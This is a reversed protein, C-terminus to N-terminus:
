QLYRLLLHFSVMTKDLTAQFADNGRKGLRDTGLDCKLRKIMREVSPRRTMIAKFRKAMPPDTPDINKLADFPVTITRGAQNNNNCCDDRHHCGVCFPVGEEDKPPGYIFREKAYRVGQYDMEHDALCIPNGHPTIRDIGRPLGETIAKKRRPNFSAKLEIGLEEKFQQKLPADCCASDYLARKISGELVAHQGLVKKIHPLFTQGDHTAADAVAVADLPIGQKPFGIVSAKHGWVMKRPSKVITGAGDDRLEWDHPCADWDECGCPKTLKSQSKKKDKGKEDQTVITEFSSHAHYHTTDGVLEEEMEIVGSRLNDAVEQLKIRDWIGAETMIQDFQEVKRIAPIQKYSYSAFNRPKPQFGCIAAFSPNNKLLRDVAEPEPEYGMVSAGVFAKLLAFFCKPKRGVLRAPVVGPAVDGPLTKQLAPEVAQGLYLIPPPPETPIPATVRDFLLRQKAEERNERPEVLEASDVIDKKLPERKNFDYLANYYDAAHTRYKMWDFRMLVEYWDGDISNLFVQDDVLVGFPLPIQQNEVIPSAIM